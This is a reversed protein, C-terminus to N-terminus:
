SENVMFYMVYFSTNVIINICGIELNNNYFTVFFLIFLFIFFRGVQTLVDAVELFLSLLCLTVCSRYAM